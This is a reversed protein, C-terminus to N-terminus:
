YIERSSAGPLTVDLLLLDLHVNETRIVDLAGSGDTAEIVSLGQKRLMKSVAQRLPDEDDVILITAERFEFAEAKPALVAGRSPRVADSEAPLLIRFTAGNGAASVVQITGNLSQVIRKVVVLGRGHSGAAKTTFFPDFIKAQVEPSMGRGTDSVELQLCQGEALGASVGVPGGGIMVRGTTVRILGDRDGIAESANTILNM